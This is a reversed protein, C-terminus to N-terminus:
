VIKLYTRTETGDTRDVERTAQTETLWEFIAAADQLVKYAIINRPQGRSVELLETPRIAGLMELYDIEQSLRAQQDSFQAPSVDLISKGEAITMQMLLTTQDRTDLKKLADSLQHASSKVKKLMEIRKRIIVRSERALHHPLDTSGWEELIRPLLECRHQSLPKPLIRVIAEAAQEWNPVYAM